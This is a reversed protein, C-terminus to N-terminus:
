KQEAVRSYFVKGTATGAAVTAAKASVIATNTSTDGDRSRATRVLLRVDTDVAYAATEWYAEGNPGYLQTVGDVSVMTVKTPTDVAPDPDTGNSRLYIWWQDARQLDSDRDPLYIATVRVTGGAAATATVSEPASPPLDKQASGSDVRIRTTQIAESRLNYEDRFDVVLHSTNGVSLVYNPTWPTGDLYVKPDTGVPVAQTAVSAADLAPDANVGVRLELRRLDTDQVRFLGALTETFTRREVTFQVRISNLFQPGATAAAPIQRHIWLATNRYTALDGPVLATGSTRATSWAGGVFAAASPATSENAITQVSGKFEPSALEAAIRIPPVLYVRDNTAGAAASTGLQARGESAVTLVTDTRSTYAVIERLAGASTRIEAEGTSPWACFADSPGSITGSGSAPLGGGSSTVPGQIWPIWLRVNTATALALDELMVARYRSGGASSEAELAESMGFANAYQDVLELVGAGALADSSTRQIRVYKSPDAGDALVTEQAVGGVPVPVYTKPGITSSDPATYRLHNADVVNIHAIGPRNHRSVLLVTINPLPGRVLFGIREAETSSRFNGLSSAQSAQAGAYSTAGSFWIRLSDAGTPGWYPGQAGSYPLEFVRPRRKRGALPEAFRVHWSDLEPLAAFDGSIITRTGFQHLEPQRKWRPAPEAFPVHWHGPHIDTTGFLSSIVMLEGFPDLEPRRARLQVKLVPEAFASYWSLVPVVPPPAFDSEQIQVDGFQNLEPRRARVKRMPEAFPVFWADSTPPIEAPVFVPEAKAQYNLIRPM